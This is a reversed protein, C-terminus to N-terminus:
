AAFGVNLLRAADSCNVLALAVACNDQNLERLKLAFFIFYTFVKYGADHKLGFIVGRKSFIGDYPAFGNHANLLGVIRILRYRRTFQLLGVVFQCIFLKPFDAAAYM